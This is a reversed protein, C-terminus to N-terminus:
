IFFQRCLNFADVLSHRVLKLIALRDLIQHLVTEILPLGGQDTAFHLDVLLAQSPSVEEFHDLDVSLAM